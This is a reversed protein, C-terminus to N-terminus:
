LEMLDNGGHKLMAQYANPYHQPREYVTEIHSGGDYTNPVFYKKKRGYRIGYQEAKLLLEVTVDKGPVSDDNYACGCGFSATPVYHYSINYGWYYNQCVTLWSNSPSIIDLWIDRYGQHLFCRYGYERIRRALEKYFEFNREMGTM